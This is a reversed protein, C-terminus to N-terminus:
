IHNYEGSELMVTVFNKVKETTITGDTISKIFDSESENLGTGRTRRRNTTNRNTKNM